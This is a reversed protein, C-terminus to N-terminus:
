REEDSIGELEAAVHESAATGRTIADALFAIVLGPAMARKQCEQIAIADTPDIDQWELFASEKMEIASEVLYRGIASSYMFDYAAKGLEAEDLYQKIGESFEEQAQDAVESM